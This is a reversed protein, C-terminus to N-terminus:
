RERSCHSTVPLDVTGLLTEASASKRRRMRNCQTALLRELWRMFARPHELRNLNEYASVFTEQTADQALHADKLISHARRYIAAQFRDVLAGFAQDRDKQGPLARRILQEFDEM